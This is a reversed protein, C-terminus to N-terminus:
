SQENYLELLKEYAAKTDGESAAAAKNIEDVNQTFTKQCKADSPDKLFTRLLGLYSKYDEAGAIPKGSVGILKYVWSAQETTNYVGSAKPEVASSVTTKPKVKKKSAKAASDTEASPSRRRCLHLTWSWVYSSVKCPM